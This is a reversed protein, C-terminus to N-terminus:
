KPVRLHRLLLTFNITFDVTGLLHAPKSILGDNVIDEIVAHAYRQRAEKGFFKRGDNTLNCEFGPGPDRIAFPDPLLARDGNDM